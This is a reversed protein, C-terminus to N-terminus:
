NIDFENGEPDKMGVAYHDEDDGSGLAGTITAGLEALRKAEADVRQKRDAYSVSRDGTWTGGSAHVDFHLRNKVVKDAAVRKFWIRPGDGRPDAISDPGLGLESEPFGVERKFDDWTTYGEPPPEAVYDLAAAWFRALLQPDKCDIVLQFRVPM